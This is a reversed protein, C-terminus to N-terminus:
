TLSKAMIFDDMVFGRGIETRASERVIFGHKGYAAIAPANHKNVALVLTECGLRRARACVHALLAGGVGRRQSRPHVYLKDLKMEGPVATLLTSAFGSREGGVFAQDWWLDPRGLEELLQPANYRQALMYDIQAQTIIAPYAVQWVVRALAAIAFVEEPHVSRIHVSM